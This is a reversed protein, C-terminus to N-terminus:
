NNHLSFFFVDTRCYYTEVQDTNPDQFWRRFRLSELGLEKCLNIQSTERKAGNIILAANCQIQEIKTCFHENNPQAYIALM